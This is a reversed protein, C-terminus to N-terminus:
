PMEYSMEYPKFTVSFSVWRFMKGFTLETQLLFLLIKSLQHNGAFTFFHFLNAHKKNKSIRNPSGVDRM